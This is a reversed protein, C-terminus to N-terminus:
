RNYNARAGKGFRDPGVTPKPPTHTPPQAAGNAGSRGRPPTRFYSFLANSDSLLRIALPPTPFCSRCSRPDMGIFGRRKRPKRQTKMRCSTPLGCIHLFIYSFKIYYSFIIYFYYLIFIYIYFITHFNAKPSERMLTSSHSFTNMKSPDCLPYRGTWFSSSAFLFIPISIDCTQGHIEGEDHSHRASCVSPFVSSGKYHM